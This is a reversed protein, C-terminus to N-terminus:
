SRSCVQVYMLNQENNPRKVFNFTSTKNSKWKFHTREKQLTTSLWSITKFSKRQKNLYSNATKGPHLLEPKDTLEEKTKDEDRTFIVPIPGM